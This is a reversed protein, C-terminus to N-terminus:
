VRRGGGAERRARKIRQLGVVVVAVTLAMWGWGFLRQTRAPAAAIGLAYYAAIACVHLVATALLFERFRQRVLSRPQQPTAPTQDM